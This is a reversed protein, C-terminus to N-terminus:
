ISEDEDKIEWLEAKQSLLDPLFTCKIWCISENFSMGFHNWKGTWHVVYHNVLPSPLKYAMNRGMAPNVRNQKRQMEFVMEASDLGRTLPCLCALFAFLQTKGLIIVHKLFYTGIATQTYPKSLILSTECEERFRNLFIVLGQCCCCCTM